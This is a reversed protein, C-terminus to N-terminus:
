MSEAKSQYESLVELTRKRITNLHKPLGYPWVIDEIITKVIPMSNIDKLMLGVAEEQAEEDKLVRSFWKWIIISGTALAVIGTVSYWLIFQWFTMM